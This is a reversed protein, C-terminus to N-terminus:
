WRARRAAPVIRYTMPGMDGNNAYIRDGVQKRVRLRVPHAGEPSWWTMAGDPYIEWGDKAFPGVEWGEGIAHLNFPEDPFDPVVYIRRDDTPPDTPPQGVPTTEAMDIWVVAYHFDPDLDELRKLQRQWAAEQEGSPPRRLLWHIEDKRMEYLFARWDLERCRHDRLWAPSPMWGDVWRLEAVKDVHDMWKDGWGDWDEGDHLRILWHEIPAM